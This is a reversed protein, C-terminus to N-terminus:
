AHWLDSPRYYFLLSKARMYTPWIMYILDFCLGVWNRQIPRYFMNQIAGTMINWRWSYIEMFMYRTKSELWVLSSTLITCRGHNTMNKPRYIFILWRWLTWTSNMWWLMYLRFLCILHCILYKPEKSWCCVQLSDFTYHNPLVRDHYLFNHQMWPDFYIWPPYNIMGISSNWPLPMFPITSSYPHHALRLNQYQSACRRSLQKNSENKEKKVETVTTAISPQM